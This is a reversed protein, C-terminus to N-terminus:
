GPVPLPAAMHDILRRVLHLTPRLVELAVIWDHPIGKLGQWAGFLQGAISATSDSDGDHNAALRVTDVYTHGSLAAYLAIALAEEGVWGEGLARIAAQHGSGQGDALAMARETAVLTEQHNSWSKLIELSKRTAVMLDAGDTVFRVIAAVMGASLYGSPHGHTLAAARAALDFAQRPEFDRFLGIPAARMVGGCGKSDNLPHDVTGNGGSSLADICTRGPARRAYMERQGGLWAHQTTPRSPTNSQQTGYWDLYSLRVDELCSELTAPKRSLGNLAGEITFLTMQTDDSVILEGNRFIPQQIGAPGFESQIERFSKFEVPYGFADGIAGGVVCGLCREEISIGQEQPLPKWRRVYDEQESSEISGPRTERVARIASEPDRGLEVLLRAAVTGTRGLGGKCHIVINQGTKLLSRLRLGSYTWLDEFREDPIDVDRIPLHYWELGFQSAKERLLNTPVGVAELEHAEMLTVLGKTPFDKIARLDTELDRDWVGSDADAQKKGPCFTLAILGNGCGTALPVIRLPDSASTRPTRMTKLRLSRKADRQSM